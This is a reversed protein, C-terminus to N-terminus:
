FYAHIILQLTAFKIQATKVPQTAQTSSSIIDQCILPEQAKGPQQEKLHQTM